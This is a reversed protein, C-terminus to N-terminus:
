NKGDLLRRVRALLYPDSVYPNGRETPYQGLKNRRMEIHKYLDTDLNVGGLVLAEIYPKRDGAPVTDPHAVLLAAEAPTLLSAALHAATTDDQAAHRATELEQQSDGNFLLVRDLVDDKLLHIHRGYETVGDLGYGDTHALLRTEGPPNHLLVTGSVPAHGSRTLGFHEALAARSGMIPAYSADSVRDEWASPQGEEATRFQGALKQRAYVAVKLSPILEHQVVHQVADLVKEEPAYGLSKAASHLFEPRIHYRGRELVYKELEESPHPRASYARLASLVTNLGPQEQPQGQAANLANLITKLSNM